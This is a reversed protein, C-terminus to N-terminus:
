YSSKNTAIKDSVLTFYASSTGAGQLHVPMMIADIIHQSCVSPNQEYESYCIMVQYFQNRYRIKLRERGNEAWKENNFFYLLTDSHLDSSSPMNDKSLHM